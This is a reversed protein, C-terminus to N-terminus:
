ELDKISYNFINKDRLADILQQKNLRNVNRVGHKRGLRRLAEVKTANTIVRINSAVSGVVGENRGKKRCVKSQEEVKNVADKFVVPKCVRQRKSNQTRPRGTKQDSDQLSDDYNYSIREGAQLKYLGSHVLANITKNKRANVGDARLIKFKNRQSPTLRNYKESLSDLTDKRSIEIVM